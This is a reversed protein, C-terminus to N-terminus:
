NLSVNTKFTITSVVSLVEYNISQSTKNQKNFCKSRLLCNSYHASLAPPLTPSIHLMPSALNLVWSQPDEFDKRLRLGLLWHGNSLGTHYCFCSMIMNDINLQECPSHKHFVWPAIIYIQMSYYDIWQWEKKISGMFYTLNSAFHKYLDGHSLSYLYMHTTMHGASIIIPILTQWKDRVVIYYSELFSQYNSHTITICFPIASQITKTINHKLHAHNNKKERM